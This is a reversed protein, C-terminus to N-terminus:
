LASAPLVSLDADGLLGSNLGQGLIGDQLAGVLVHLLAVVGVDCNEVRSLLLDTLLVKLLATLDGELLLGGTLSHLLAVLRKDLNTIAM